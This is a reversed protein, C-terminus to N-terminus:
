SLGQAPGPQADRRTQDGGPSGSVCGGLPRISSHKDNGGYPSDTARCLFAPRHCSQTQWATLNCCFASILKVRLNLILWGIKSKPKWSIAVTVNPPRRKVEEHSESSLVSSNSHGNSSAFAWKSLQWKGSNQSICLRICTLVSIHSVCCCVRPLLLKFAVSTKSIAVDLVVSLLVGSSMAKKRIQGPLHRHVVPHSGREGVWSPYSRHTKWGDGVGGMQTAAVWFDERHRLQSPSRLATSVM